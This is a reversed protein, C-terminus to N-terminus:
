FFHDSCLLCNDRHAMQHRHRSIRIKFITRVTHIFSDFPCSFIQKCKLLATYIGYHKGIFETEWIQRIHLSHRHGAHAPDNTFQFIVDPNRKSNIYEPICVPRQIKCNCCPCFKHSLNECSNIGAIKTEPIGIHSFCNAMLM